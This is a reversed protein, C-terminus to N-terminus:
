QIILQQRQILPIRIIRHYISIEQDKVKSQHLEQRRISSFGRREKIVTTLIGGEIAISGDSSIATSYGHGATGVAGTGILKPGEQNCAGSSSDRIFVWVAGASSNDNTGGVFATNGDSSVAAATGQAAIGVVGSGVLKSGQQTWVSGSRTFVWTAGIRNNDGGGGVIATNGDSSIAVSSGEYTLGIFGAGVKKPGQQTWVGGSRTFVWVAGIFNNDVDGSQIVTNGGSSIAVSHGQSAYGIVETGVLKPGQQTWVGGSRTFIWVAGQFSNDEYGGESVTNGDASVAVSSGQWSNGVAGTGILKSGQQIWVGGSRTFVWIAGKNGDDAGGGVIAINGDASLAVAYGYSAIGLAGIGLLKSGQQTWVGTSQTFIWVAGTDSNDHPGGVIVTNGDGSIAVSTGQYSKGVAGTGVLKLSQQIFQAFLPNHIISGALFLFLLLKANMKIVM